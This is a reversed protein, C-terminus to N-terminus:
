ADLGEFKGIADLFDSDPEAKEEPLHQRLTRSFFEKETLDALMTIADAGTGVLLRHGGVDLLVIQHRSSLNRNALIRINADTGGIAQRRRRSWFALGASLASIGALIFGIRALPAAMPTPFADVEPLRRALPADAGHVVAPSLTLAVLVLPAIRSLKM